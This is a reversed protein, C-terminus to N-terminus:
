ECERGMAHIGSWLPAGPLRDTARWSASVSCEVPPWNSFGEVLFQRSKTAKMRLADVEKQSPSSSWAKARDMSDFAIVVFRKPPIGDLNTINEARVLYQGGFAALATPLQQAFLNQDIMESIDVVAYAGPSKTQAHLGNIAVIAGLGFSALMALGLSIHRNM